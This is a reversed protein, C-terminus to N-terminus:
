EADIIWGSPRKFETYIEIPQLQDSSDVAFMLVENNVESWTSGLQKKCGKRERDFIPVSFITLAVYEQTCQSLLNGCLRKCLMSRERDFMPLSFYELVIGGSDM